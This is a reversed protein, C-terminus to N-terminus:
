YQVTEALGAKVLADNVNVWRDEEKLWLEGLYRGYKGKRDKITELIIEKGSVMRRLYDRAKIGQARDAGRIEPANIRALRIKENKKWVGFGLDLDVRCTDGDYVSMVVARYHYLAKRKIEM